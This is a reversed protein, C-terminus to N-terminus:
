EEGVSAGGQDNMGFGIIEDAIRSAIGSVAYGAADDGLLRLRM